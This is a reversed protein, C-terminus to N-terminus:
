LQPAPSYSSGRRQEVGPTDRSRRSWPGQCSPGPSGLGPFRNEQNRKEEGTARRRVHVRLRARGSRGAGGGVGSGVELRGLSAPPGAWRGQSRWTAGRSRGRSLASGLRHGGWLQGPHHGWGVGRCALKAQSQTPCGQDSGLQLAAWTEGDVLHILSKKRPQERWIKVSVVDGAWYLDGPPLLYSGRHSASASSGM